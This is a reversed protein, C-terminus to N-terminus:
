GTCREGTARVRSLSFRTTLRIRGPRTVQIATWPDAVPDQDDVGAPRDVVVCGAGETVKWYPTFRVRLHVTAPARPVDLEVRDAGLATVRAGGGSALPAPHDVAFVRWHADHFVEHLYPLAGERVLKAETAASYDVPADALAVYAVANEDLWRRYRAPTLPRGDYFLGNLKRDLQREWGRALPFSPAVRASEWHNDTFPIEVRFPGDPRSRLFALMGDYYSADVSADGSARAFDDVPASVQWYLLPLVLLLLARRRHPLLTLAAVPGAFLAGLRVANGGMPTSLAESVVLLLAYLVLGVRLTPSASRWVVAIV